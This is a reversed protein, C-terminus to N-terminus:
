FWSAITDGVSELDSGFSSFAGGIADITSSSFGIDGLLSEISGVPDNFFSSLVGEIQSATDGLAKFISAVASDIDGFVTNLAQAIDNLAYGADQLFQAVAQDALNFASNLAAAVQSADYSLSRYLSVIGQVTENYVNALATAIQDLGASIYNLASVLQTETLDYIDKLGSAIQDVTYNLTNLISAVANAAENYVDNLGSVIQDVAYNLDSLVTAFAAATENYVYTLASGIQDVTYNLAELVSAVASDVYNWATALAGAVQDLAYNVDAMIKAAEVATENFVNKLVDMVQDADYALSNLAGIVDQYGMQFQDVLFNAMQEATYGAEELASIAADFGSTVATSLTDFGSVIAGAATDYAGALWNGAATVGSSVYNAVTNYAGVIATGADSFGQAIAKYAISAGQAIYTGLDVLGEYIQPGFKSIVIALGAGVLGCVLAGVGETLVLCGVAFALGVSDGICQSLSAGGGHAYSNCDSYTVYASLGIGIVGLGKGVVDVEAGGSEAAVEELEPSADAVSDLAPAAAEESSAFFSKLSSYIKPANRVLSRGAAGAKVAYGTDAVINASETSHGMFAENIFSSTLGTPDWQTTPQDAAYIYPSIAPDGILQTVPDRQTFRGVTPDYNRARLDYLGTVSDRLQSLFLLDIPVASSGTTPAVSFTTMTANGWADYNYSQLIRGAQNSVTSISGRVDTTLYYTASLTQMAVPGAGYIYRRVLANSTGTVEALLPVSAASDWKYYNISAGTGSVVRSVRNGDGDYTYSVTSSPTVAQVLQDAANYTFSTTVGGVTSSTVDGANDYTYSANTAGSSGTLEDINNYSYSTAASSTQNGLADYSIANANTGTNPVSGVYGGAYSASTPANSGTTTGSDTGQNPSGPSSETGTTCASSANTAPAAPSTAIAQAGIRNSSDYGYSDLTTTSGITSSTALPNGSADYSTASYSKLTGACSLSQSTLYGATNYGQSLVLGNSYVVGTLQRQANRLYAVHVNGSDVTMVNHQDDYSYRITAGSPYTETMQGPVSYDYSFNGQTPNDVSTLNGTADYTYTTTGLTPDTMSTRQGAGNYTESVTITSQGPQSYVIQTRLGQANLTYTTVRGDPDTVSVLNNSVDYGYSWVHGSITMSTRKNAANYGYYTILGNGDTQRVLNGVVDYGYSTTGASNTVSSLRENADYTYSTLHGSPDTRTLVNGTPDYTQSTLQGDLTSSLLQNNAGYTYSAVHGSSDRASLVNNASDFSYTTTTGAPDTSSTERGTTDYTYTTANDSLLDGSPDFVKVDTTTGGVVYTATPEDWSYTTTSGNPLQTQLLTGAADYSNTTTQAGPRTLSLLNGDADYSYTTQYASNLGSTTNGRADTIVLPQGAENYQTLPGLGNVPHHALDLTQYGTLNGAADYHWMVISLPADTESREGLANYKYTTSNLLSGGPPTTRTLYAGSYTYTTVNGNADSQAVVQHAANYVFKTVANASSTFPLSQTLIDGATDYTVSELRNLPDQTVTPDFQSDYSFTNTAGDPSTQSVLAGKVYQDIYDGRELGDPTQVLASRTALGQVSNWNYRDNFRAQSGRQAAWCVRGNNYSVSLRQAGTPDIVGSLGGSGYNYIWTHGNPDTYSTLVGSSYGYSVTRTPTSLTVLRGASVTVNVVLPTTSRQVLVQTLTTGSYKFTLGQGTASRYYQIRGGVSQWTVGDFRKVVCTTGVCSLSTRSGAPAVWVGHGNNTFVLRQGDEGRVVASQGNSSVSVGADFISSWGPGFLGGASDLSNYSRTLKLPEGVGAVNLDQYSLELAGTLTNVDDTTSTPNRSYLAGGFSQATALSNVVVGLATGSHVSFSSSNVSGLGEASATLYLSSGTTSARCGAFQATGTTTSLPKTFCTLTGSSISLSVTASYPGVPNGGADAVTVAPQTGFQSNVIGGNPQVSFILRAAAGTTVDFNTSTAVLGDASASLQYNVGVKDIACGAFSGLYTTANFNVPDNSCSFSAGSAGTGSTLSLQVSGGANVNNGGADQVALVPQSGFATGGQADGPQSVFVLQAAPGVSVTFPESTTTVSDNEADTAVIRYTGARDVFCGTFSATGSGSPLPNIDCHLTASTSSYDANELTLQVLGSVPSGGGDQLQLSPQTGLATGGQGNGPEDLWSISGASTTSVVISASQVSLSGDTATLTYTGATDIGCGTFSAVGAVAALSTCSLTAGNPTTLSLQITDTNTAVVNGDADEVSVQPQVTFDAGPQAGAPQISFALQSKDGAYVSFASSRVAFTNSGGDTAVGLLQYTSSSSQNITCHTFAAVGSTVSLDYGSGAGKHISTESGTCSLPITGSPDVVLAVKDTSTTVVNGGADEVALTPALASNTADFNTGAKISTPAQTFVVQSVAGVSVHFSSTNASTLSGDTARLVYDGATTIQCHQFSVVGNTESQTCGSLVGSSPGSYIQLSVTSSDSTVANGSGDEVTVQPQTTFAAGGYAGSPTTIALKAATSPAPTAASIAADVLGFPALVAFAVVGHLTRRAGRSRPAKVLSRWLARRTPSTVAATSEFETM